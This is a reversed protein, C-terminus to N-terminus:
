DTSENKKEIYYKFVEFTTYCDAYARHSDSKINLYKKLTELKYNDTTGNPIVKKIQNLVDIYRLKEIILNHKGLAVDLFELDFGVNYGMVLNGKIRDYIQQIVEGIKPENVVMDDTIKNVRSAQPPISFGPNILQNYVDTVEGNEYTVISIEIIEDKGAKLGTTEVDLIVFKSPIKNSQKQEFYYPLGSTYPQITRSGEQTRNSAKYKDLPIYGKRLYSGAKFANAFFASLFWIVILLPPFVITLLMLLSILVGYVPLGIKFYYYPSLLSQKTMGQVVKIQEGTKPNILEIYKM